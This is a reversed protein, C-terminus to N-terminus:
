KDTDLRGARADCGEDCAAVCRAFVNRAVAKRADGFALRGYAGPGEDIRFEDDRLRAGEVGHRHAPRQVAYGEADFVDDVREVHRRL